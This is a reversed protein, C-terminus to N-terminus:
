LVHLRVPQGGRRFEGRSIAVVRGAWVAVRHKFKKAPSRHANRRQSRPRRGDRQDRCARGRCLGAGRHRLGCRASAPGAQYRSHGSCSAGSSSCRQSSSSRMCKPLSRAVQENMQCRWESERRGVNSNLPRLLRDAPISPNAVYKM